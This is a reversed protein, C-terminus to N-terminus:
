ADKLAALLKQKTEAIKVLSAIRKDDIKFGQVGDKQYFLNNTLEREVTSLAVISQNIEAAKIIGHRGEIHRLIVHEPWMMCEEGRERLPEYVTRRFELHLLRALEKTSMTNLNREYVGWLNDLTPNEGPSQPKRFVHACGWCPERTVAHKEVVAEFPVPAFGSLDDEDDLLDEERIITGDTEITRRKKVRKDMDRKAAATTRM